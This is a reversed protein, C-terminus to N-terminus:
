LIIILGNGYGLISFLFKSKVHASENLPMLKYSDGVQIMGSEVRGAL